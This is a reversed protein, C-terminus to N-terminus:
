KIKIIGCTIDDSQEETGRFMIVDDLITQLLKDSSVNKNKLILNGFRDDGYECEANDMAEPIGDTYFILTDNKELSICEVEFPLDISGLLLGGKDLTTLIDEENKYLYIPNHGANISLLSKEKHDILGFWATAFKDATTSSILFRNLAEVFLKLDFEVINIIFYTQLFSYITSVIMAAPISKGSVDAVLLLTKDESIKIINYYDGGTEKAPILVANLDLDKFKPLKDPLLKQQIAHAISLEYKMQETKVEVEALRANEIALACESALVKFLDEDQEDFFSGDKKNIVQIVGVLDKKRIMPVCMMNRTKFGTRKDFEQNFRKDSYCDDINLVKKHKAVWGAIGEGLKIKKYTLEKKKEGSVTHFYLQNDSKDYLLLSSAEANLLLKSSNIIENLLEALPKKELIKQSIKNFFLLRKILGTYNTCDGCNMKTAISM